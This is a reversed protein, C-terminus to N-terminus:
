INKVIKPFEMVDKPERTKYKGRTFDPCEVPVSGNAISRESLATISMWAAADYVDIPMEKDGRRVAEIFHKLMIYDMGGHVENEEEASINQWELPLYERYNKETGFAKSYHDYGHSFEKDDLVVANTSQCYFGETGSVTLNRDCLRPLTTDLKLVIMEGNECEIMTSVIDGQKFEVDRIEKCEPTKNIYNKMGVAKSAMSVLKVFRNGRNINLIKAIPGLDHTPYNDCCYNKYEEFRYHSGDRGKAIERRLDHCYAGQCYAVEGLVGNRVLSTALLEEKYYCCNELFMIPTKTEEYCDVLKWCDEICHTGGVEIGVPIGARMTALTVEVHTKWSTAIIVVDIGSKLLDKYNVFKQPMPVKLDEVMDNAVEDMRGQRKDCIATVEVNKIKCINNILGPGRQGLGIVGVKIVKEEM